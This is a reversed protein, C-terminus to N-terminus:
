HEAGACLFAASGAALPGVASDLPEPPAVSVPSLTPSPDQDSKEYHHIRIRSKM